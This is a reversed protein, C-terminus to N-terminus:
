TLLSPPLELLQSALNSLIENTLSEPVGCVEGLYFYNKTPSILITLDVPSSMERCCIIIESVTYVAYSVKADSQTRVPSLVSDEWSLWATQLVPLACTKPSATIVDGEDEFGEQILQSTVNKLPSIQLTQTHLCPRKDPSAPLWTLQKDDPSSTVPNTPDHVTVYNLRVPLSRLKNDARPFLPIRRNAQSPSPTEPTLISTEM